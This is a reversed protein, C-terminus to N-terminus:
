GVRRVTVQSLLQEVLAREGMATGEQMAAASGCAVARAAAQEPPCGEQIAWLLGALAADGAGVPSRTALRPPVAMGIWDDMALVLGRAGRSLAVVRVGDAQLRQAAQLHDEDTELQCGLLDGAEQSNPKLGFPRAELGLRLALGSTDLFAQSGRAQVAEILRAYTDAPAGPPLSGSFAWLDGPGAMQEIQQQLEALQHPTVYPGPENIETYQQRAEDLLILKQRTEGQVEVFHVDFGTQLLDRRLAAGTVGAILAVMRSPIGLARLAKSVNVGKGGWDERLVKARHMTGPELRPVSLARDRVPNLTVTVIMLVMLDYSLGTAM